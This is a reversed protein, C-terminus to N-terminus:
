MEQLMRGGVWILGTAIQQCPRQLVEVDFRLVFRVLGEEFSNGTHISSAHELAEIQHVRIEAGQQVSVIGHAHCRTDLRSEREEVGPEDAM